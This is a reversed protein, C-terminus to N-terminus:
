TWRQQNSTSCTRLRPGYTFSDDICEGNHASKFRIGGNPHSIIDWKQRTYSGCSSTIGVDDGGPSVHLCRGTHRNRFRRLSGDAIVEWQTRTTGDCAATQLNYTYTDRLCDGTHTNKYTEYVLISVEGAPAVEPESPRASAPSTPLCITAVTLAAAGLTSKLGPM